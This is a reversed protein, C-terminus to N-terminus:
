RRTWLRWASWLATGLFFVGAIGFVEFLAAGRPMGRIAVAAALLGLGGISFCLRFILEGRGPGNGAM